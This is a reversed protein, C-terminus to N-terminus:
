YTGVRSRLETVKGWAIIEDNTLTGNVTLLDVTDYQELTNVYIAVHTREVDNELELIFAGTVCGLAFVVVCVIFAIIVDSDNSM